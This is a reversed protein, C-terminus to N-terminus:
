TWFIRVRNDFDDAFFDWDEFDTDLKLKIAEAHQNLCEAAALSCSNPEKDYMQIIESVFFLIQPLLRM